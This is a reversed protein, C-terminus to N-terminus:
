IGVLRSVVLWIPVCFFFLNGKSTKWGSHCPLNGKKELQKLYKKRHNIWQNSSSQIHVECQSTWYNLKRKVTRGEKIHLVDNQFMKNSTCMAGNVLYFTIYFWWPYDFASKSVDWEISKFHSFFDKPGFLMKIKNM